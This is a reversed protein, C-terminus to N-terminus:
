FDFAQAPSCYSNFHAIHTLLVSKGSGGNGCIVATVDKEYNEDNFSCDITKCIKDFCIRPANWKKIAGYWQADSKANYFDIPKLNKTEGNNLEHEIFDENIWKAGANPIGLVQFYLWQSEVLIDQLDQLFLVKIKSNGTNNHKIIYDQVNTRREVNTVFIFEKLDHFHNIAQDYDDQLEKILLWDNITKQHFKCQAYKGDSSVLDIGHQKEGKTGYFDFEVNYKYSLIIRSHKEFEDFTTSPIHILRSELLTEM